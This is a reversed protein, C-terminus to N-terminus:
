AVAVRRSVSLNTTGPIAEENSSVAGGAVRYTLECFAAHSHRALFVRPTELVQVSRSSGSMGSLAQDVNNLPPHHTCASMCLAISGSDGAIQQRGQTSLAVAAEVPALGFRGEKAGM